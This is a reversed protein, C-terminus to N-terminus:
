GRGPARRGLEPVLRMLDDQLGSIADAVIQACTAPPTSPLADLNLLPRSVLREKSREIFQFRTPGHKQELQTRALAHEVHRKPGFKLEVRLDGDIRADPRARAVVLLAIGSDAPIDALIHDTNDIQRFSFGTLTRLAICLSHRLAAPDFSSPM